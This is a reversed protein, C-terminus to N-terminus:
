PPVLRRWRLRRSRPSTTRRACPRRGRCGRLRPRSRRGPAGPGSPRRRRRLGVFTSVQGDGGGHQAVREPQREGARTGGQVGLHGRQHGLAVLRAGPAVIARASAMRASSSARPQTTSSPGSPVRRCRQASATSTSGPPRTGLSGGPRVGDSSGKARTPPHLLVSPLIFHCRSRDLPEVRLSGHPRVFAARAGREAGQAEGVHRAQEPLSAARRLGRPIRRKTYWVPLGHPPGHHRAELRRRQEPRATGPSGTRQPTSVNAVAPRGRPPAAARWAWTESSTLIRAAILSMRSRVAFDRSDSEGALALPRIGRPRIM